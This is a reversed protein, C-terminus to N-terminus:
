KKPKERFLRYATFAAYEYDDLDKAKLDKALYQHYLQEGRKFAAFGSITMQERIRM